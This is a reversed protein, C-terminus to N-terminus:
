GASVAEYFAALNALPVGPPLDCGSSIIFNKYARTDEMLKLTDSRVSDPTGQHFVATPDLNGSLIVNNEVKQLAETLDMPVGFHYIEAGSQLVYPLHNLKAGCNHLIVTFDPCQVAEIIQRVYPASFRGLGRPSLLGAVPEAMVIGYAGAGHFAKAYATLFRTVRELLAIVPEADIATQELIESVGFIRAALSFPGIMGGLVPVPGLKSVQRCADLYVQTRADGPCPEPLAHIEELQHVRRGVVTPIEDDSMRVTCGYTEAEASLDMATMMVPTQFRDRLAMVADIQAQASTVADRITAQTIELGAYVGIPMALRQPRNVVWEAFKTQM